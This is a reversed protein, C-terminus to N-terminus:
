EGEESSRQRKAASAADSQADVGPGLTADAAPATAASAPKSVDSAAAVATLLISKHEDWGPKVVATAPAAEMHAIVYAEWGALSATGSSLKKQKTSTTKRIRAAALLPYSWPKLTNSASHLGAIAAFAAKAAAETTITHHSTRSEIATGDTSADAAEKRKDAADLHAADLASQAAAHAAGHTDLARDICEVDSWRCRADLEDIYRRALTLTSSSNIHGGIASPVLVGVSIFAGFENYGKAVVLKGNGVAHGTVTVVHVEETHQDPSGDGNDLLYYGGTSTFTRDIRATRMAGTCIPASGLPAVSASPTIIGKVVFLTGGDATATQFAADAPALDTEGESPMAPADVGVWAGTFTFGVGDEVLAGRWVFLTDRWSM